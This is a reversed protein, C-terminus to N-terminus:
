GVKSDLHTQAASAAHMEMTLIEAKKDLLKGAIVGPVAILLGMQTTILAESIGGGVGGSGEFLAMEVLGSFTEVMGSVTGLLGLLPAVKCLVQIGNRYDSLLRETQLVAHTVLNARSESSLTSAAQYQAIFLDFIGACRQAIREEGQLLFSSLTGRFGKKLLFFRMGILMWLLFGVALLVPMVYGGDGIYRGAGNGLELIFASM